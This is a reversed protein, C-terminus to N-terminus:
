ATGEPKTNEELAYERGAAFAEALSTIKRARVYLLYGLGGSSLSMVGEESECIFGLRKCEALGGLSEALVEIQRVTEIDYANSETMRCQYFTKPSKDLARRM